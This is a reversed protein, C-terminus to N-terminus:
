YCSAAAESPLSLEPVLVLSPFSKLIDAMVWDHILVVVVDYLVDDVRQSDLTRLLGLRVGILHIGCPLQVGTPHGISSARM